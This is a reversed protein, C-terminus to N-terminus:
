GLIDTLPPELPQWQNQVKPPEAIQAFVQRSLAACGKTPAVLLYFLDSLACFMQSLRGYCEVLTTPVPDCLLHHTFSPITKEAHLALCGSLHLFPMSKLVLCESLHLFPKSKLIIKKHLKLGCCLPDNNLILLTWSLRTVYTCVQEHHVKSRYELPKSALFRGSYYVANGVVLCTGEPVKGRGHPRQHETIPTM